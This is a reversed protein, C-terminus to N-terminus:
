HIVNCGLTGIMGAEELHRGGLVPVERGPLGARAAEPGIQERV